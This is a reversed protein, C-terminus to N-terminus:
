CGDQPRDDRVGAGPNVDFRAPCDVSGRTLKTGPHTAGGKFERKEQVGRDARSWLGSLAWGAAILVVALIPPLWWGEQM